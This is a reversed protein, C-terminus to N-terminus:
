AFASGGLTCVVRGCTITEARVLGAHSTPTSQLKFVSRVAASYLAHAEVLLTPVAGFATWHLASMNTSAGPKTGGSPTQFVMSSISAELQLIIPLISTARSLHTPNMCGQTPDSADTPNYLGDMAPEALMFQYKAQLLSRLRVMLGALRDHESTPRGAQPISAKWDAAAAALIPMVPELKSISVVQSHQLIKIMAVCAKVAVVVNNHLPRRGLYEVIAPTKTSEWLDLILRRVYKM